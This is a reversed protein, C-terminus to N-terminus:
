VAFVFSWERSSMFALPKQLRPCVANKRMYVGLAVFVLFYRSYEPFVFVRLFPFIHFSYNFYFM